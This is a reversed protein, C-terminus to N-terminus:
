GNDEEEEEQDWYIWIIAREENHSINVEYGFFELECKMYHLFDELNINQDEFWSLGWWYDTAFRGVGTTIEIKEAIYNELENKVIEKVNNIYNDYGITSKKFAEKATIM